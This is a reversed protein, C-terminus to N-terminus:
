QQMQLKKEIFGMEQGLFVKTMFPGQQGATPPM